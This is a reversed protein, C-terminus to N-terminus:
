AVAENWHAEEITVSNPSHRINIAVLTDAM